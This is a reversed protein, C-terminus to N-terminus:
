ASDRRGRLPASIKGSRSVDSGQKNVLVPIDEINGAVTNYFSNFLLTGYLSVGVGEKTTVPLDVTHVRPAHAAPAAPAGPAAAGPAAAASEALRSGGNWIEALEGSTLVGRRQLIDALTAVRRDASTATVASLDAATITGKRALIQALTVAPDAAPDACRAAGVVFHLSIVLTFLRQIM